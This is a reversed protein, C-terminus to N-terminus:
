TANKSLGFSFEHMFLRIVLISSKFSEAVLVKAMAGIAWNVQEM